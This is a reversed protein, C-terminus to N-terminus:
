SWTEHQEAVREMGDYEEICWEVHDPIEIVKLRACQGSVADSGLTEVLEILLPDDRPIDIVLMDSGIGGGNARLAYWRDDEDPDQPRLPDKQEIAQPQGRDRLWLWGTRNVSFGGYCANIVIKKM